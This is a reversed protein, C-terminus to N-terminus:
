EGEAIIPYYEENNRNYYRGIIIPNKYTVEALECYKGKIVVYIRPSHRCKAVVYNEDFVRSVVFIHEDYQLDYESKFNRPKELMEIRNSNSRFRPTLYVALGILGIISLIIIIAAM